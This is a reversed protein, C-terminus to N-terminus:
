LVHSGVSSGGIGFYTGAFSYLDFIMRGAFDHKTILVLVKHYSWILVELSLRFFNMALRPSVDSLNAFAVKFALEQM